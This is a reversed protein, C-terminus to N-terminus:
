DLRTACHTSGNSKVKALHSCQIFAAMLASLTRLLGKIFEGSRIKRAM